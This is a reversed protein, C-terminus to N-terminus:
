RDESVQASVVLANGREDIVLPDPAEVLRDIVPVRKREERVDADHEPEPEASRSAGRRTPRMAPASSTYTATSASM